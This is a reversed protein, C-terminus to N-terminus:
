KGKEPLDNFRDLFARILDIAFRLNTQDLQYFTYPYREAYQVLNDARLIALHNSITEHSVPHFKAIDQVCAPGHMFLFFLIELRAPYAFAKMKESTIRLDPPYLHAKSFAM